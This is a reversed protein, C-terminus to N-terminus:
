QNTRRSEGREDDFIRRTTSGCSASEGEDFAKFRGFKIM